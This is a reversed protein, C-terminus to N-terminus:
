RGRLAEELLRCQEDATAPATEDYEVLTVLSNLHVYAVHWHGAADAWGVHAYREVPAFSQITMPPGGSRLMVVDGAVRQHAM